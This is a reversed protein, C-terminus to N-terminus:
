TKNSEDARVGRIALAENWVGDWGGEFYLSNHIQNVFVFGAAELANEVLSLTQEGDQGVKIHEWFTGRAKLGQDWVHQM